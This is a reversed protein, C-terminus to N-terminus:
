EGSYSALLGTPRLLQDGLGLGGLRLCCWRCALWLLHRHAEDHEDCGRKADRANWSGARRHFINRFRGFCRSVSLRLNRDGLLSPVIVLWDPNTSTAARAPSAPISCASISPRASVADSNARTAPM